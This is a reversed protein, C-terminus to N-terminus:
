LRIRVESTASLKELKFKAIIQAQYYSGLTLLWWSSTILGMVIHYTAFAINFLLSALALKLTRDM